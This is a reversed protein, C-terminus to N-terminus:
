RSRCEKGVRREESRGVLRERESALRSQERERVLRVREIAVAAQGALADLLRRQDPSLVSGPTEFQLGLVGVTGQATRLPQYFWEGGPLTDTGRGAPQNHEWAWTATAREVETLTITSPQGARLVLQGADPLLVVVKANLIQGVQTVIARLMEQLGTASAIERSLAYLAATRAERQKAAEAQDRVRATLNSTLVAVILFVM